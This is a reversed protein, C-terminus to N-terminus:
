NLKLILKNLFPIIKKKYPITVNLGKIEPNNKILDKFKQIDNIEYNDYSANKINNNLFKNDFYKKSFSHELPFGILGFKNM